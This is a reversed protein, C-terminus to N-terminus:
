IDILMCPNIWLNQYPTWVDNYIMIYSSYYMSSARFCNKQTWFFKEPIHFLWENAQQFTTRDRWLVAYWMPVPSHIYYEKGTCQFVGNKAIHSAFDFIAYVKELASTNHLVNTLHFLRGVPQHTTRRLSQM